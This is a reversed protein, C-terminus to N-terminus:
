SVVNPLFSTDVYYKNPNGKEILVIIEEKNIHDTPDFWLNESTFIHLDSTVPNKWQVVIQYPNRGNVNLIRNIEVSQFKAIVPTGYRKLYKIKRDKLASVLMISFGIIFFLFGLAGFIASMGWLSFFGKIKAQEPSTEQYVVEVGEGRSYSPPNTGSLSTFEILEGSSTKFEVVPKYTTSDSSRSRVLQTVTGQTVIASNLFGKTSSYTFFAVALMVFGVITFVYKM